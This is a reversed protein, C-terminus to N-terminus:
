QMSRMSRFTVSPRLNRKCSRIIIRGTRVATVSWIRSFDHMRRTSVARLVAGCVPMSSKRVAVAPTCRTVPRMCIPSFRTTAATATPPSVRMARDWSPPLRTCSVTISAAANPHIAWNVCWASPLANWRNPTVTRSPPLMSWQDLEFLSEISKYYRFQENLQRISHLCDQYRM